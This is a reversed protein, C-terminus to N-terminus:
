LPLVKLSFWFKDGEKGTLSFGCRTLVNQSKFNDVLTDAVIRKIGNQRGFAIMAMLAETMYGNGEYEPSMGYGVESVGNEDPMYKFDISGIVTKISKLVILHDVALPYEEPHEILRQKIKHLYDSSPNVFEDGRNILGYKDLLADNSDLLADIMECDVPILILRDTEIM